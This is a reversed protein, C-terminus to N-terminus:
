KNLQNVLAVDRFDLPQKEKHYECGELSYGFDLGAWDGTKDLFQMLGVFERYAYKGIIIRFLLRVFLPKDWMARVFDVSWAGLTIYNEYGKKYDVM